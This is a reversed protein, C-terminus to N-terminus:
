FPLPMEKGNLMLKRQALKADLVYANGQKTFLNQAVLSQIQQQAAQEAQKRLDAQAKADATSDKMEEYIGQSIILTLLTEDITLHADGKLAQILPEPTKLDIPKSGDVSLEINGILNGKPTTLAIDSLAIEPSKALLQPALEMLKGFLAFGLMNSAINQKELETLTNQIDLLAAADINDVSINTHYSITRNDGPMVEKPLVLKKLALTVLTDITEKKDKNVTTVDLSELSLTDGESGIYASDIHFKSDTLIAGSSSKTRTATAKTGLLALDIDDKQAKFTLSPFDLQGELPVLQNNVVGNFTLQSVELKDKGKTLVLGKAKLDANIEPNDEAFDFSGTIGKWNLVGEKEPIKATVAPSNIAGKTIGTEATNATVNIFLKKELEGALAKEFVPFITTDTPKKVKANDIIFRMINTALVNADGFPLYEKDVVKKESQYVVNFGSKSEAAQTVEPAAEPAAQSSTAPPPTAQAKEEALVPMSTILGTSLVSAIALSLLKKQM